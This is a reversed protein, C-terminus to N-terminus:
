PDWTANRSDGTLQASNHMTGGKSDESFNAHVMDASWLSVYSM